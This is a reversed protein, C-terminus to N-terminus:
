RVMSDTILTAHIPGTENRTPISSRIQFSVARRASVIVKDAVLDNVAWVTRIFFAASSLLMTLIKPFSFSLNNIVNGKQPRSCSLCGCKCMNLSAYSQATHLSIKLLVKMTNRASRHFDTVTYIIALDLKTNNNQRAQMRHTFHLLTLCVLSM